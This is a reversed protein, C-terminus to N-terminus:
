GLLALLYQMSTDTNKPSQLLVNNSSSAGSGHLPCCAQCATASVSHMYINQTESKFERLGVIAGSTSAPGIGRCSSSSCSIRTPSLSLSLYLSPSISLYLSLSLSVSISVSSLVSPRHGAPQLHLQHLHLQGPHVPTQVSMLILAQVPM